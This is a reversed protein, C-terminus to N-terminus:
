RRIYDSLAILNKDSLFFDKIAKESEEVRDNFGVSEIVKYNLNFRNLIDLWYSDDTERVNGGYRLPDEEFPINSKLVIYLDSKLDLADLILGDPVKGYVDDHLEWYGLTSFLDTDYINVRSRTKKRQIARQGKWINTMIKTNLENGVGELYPRAFEFFWPDHLYESVKKSTTTKGISENGFFVIKKQFFDRFTDSLEEWNNWLDVRLNTGKAPNLQRFLDYPVFSGEILEALKFGYNESAFILDGKQAGASVLYDRWMEWFNESENPNQPVTENIHVLKAGKPLNNEVAKFRLDVLPEEPQTSLIVTLYGENELFNNSFNMLDIHGTSLPMATLLLFGNPM